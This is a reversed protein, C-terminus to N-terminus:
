HSCKKTFFSAPEFGIPLMNHFFLTKLNFYWHSSKKAFFWTVKEDVSNKFEMEMSLGCIFNWWVKWWYYLSVLFIVLNVDKKRTHKKEIKNWIIWEKNPYLDFHFDIIFFHLSNCVIVLGYFPCLHIHWCTRRKLLLVQQVHQWWLSM